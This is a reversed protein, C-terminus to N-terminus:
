AGVRTTRGVTADVTFQPQGPRAVLRSDRGLVLGMGIPASRPPGNGLAIGFTAPDRTSGEYASSVDQGVVSAAGVVFGAPALPVICYRTHAPKEADVLARILGTRESSCLDRAAVLVEFTHPIDGTREDCESLVTCGLTAEGLDTPSCGAPLRTTCGLVPGVVGDLEMGAGLVFPAGFPERVRVVVDTYLRVILALGDRTGRLRAIEPAATLIRRLRDPEALISDFVPLELWRALFPLLREPAHGGTFLEPYADMRSAVGDFGTAEFLALWRRLFDDDPTSDQFVRPLYRAIGTRPREVEISEVRPTSVGNGLLRLRMFLFRGPPALVMADGAVVREDAPSQFPVSSSPGVVVGRSWVPPALLEDVARTEIAIACGTPIEGFLSVRHWATGPVNADLLDEPAAPGLVVTGETPFALRRRLDPLDSVFRFLAAEDTTLERPTSTCCGGTALSPDVLFACKESDFLLAASRRIAYWDRGPYVAPPALESGDRRFLRVNPSSAQVVVLVDDDVGLAVGDAVASAIPSDVSCGDLAFLHVASATLVAVSSGWFIADRIPAGPSLAAIVGGSPRVRLEVVNADDDRPVLAWGRDSVAWAPVVCGTADVALLPPRPRTLGPADVMVSRSTPSLTLACPDRPFVASPPDLLKLTITQRASRAGVIAVEYVADVDTSTLAGEFVAFTRCPGVLRGVVDREFPVGGLNATLRLVPEGLVEPWGLSLEARLSLPESGLAVLVPEPPLNWRLVGLECPEGALPAEYGACTRADELSPVSVGASARALWGSASPVPRPGRLDPLRLTTSM